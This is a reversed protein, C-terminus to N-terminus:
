DLGSRSHSEDREKLLRNVRVTIQVVTSRTDLPGTVPEGRAAGAPTSCLTRFPSRSLRPFM